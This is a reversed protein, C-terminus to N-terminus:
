WFYPFEQTGNCIQSKCDRSSDIFTNSETTISSSPTCSLPDFEHSSWNFNSVEYFNYSCLHCSSSKSDFDFCNQGIYLHLFTTFVIFYFPVIKMNKIFNTYNVVQSFLFFSLLNIEFSRLIKAFYQLIQFFNFFFCPFILM